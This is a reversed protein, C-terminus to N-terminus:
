KCSKMLKEYKSKYKLYKYMYDKNFNGGELDNEVKPTTAPAPTPTPTTETVPTLRRSLIANVSSIKDKLLGILNNILEPDQHQKAELLALLQLVALEGYLDYINGSIDQSEKPNIKKLLDDFYVKFKKDKEILDQTLTTIEPNNKLVYLVNENTVLKEFLTKIPKAIREPVNQLIYNSKTIKNNGLFANLINVLFLLADNTVQRKEEPITGKYMQEVNITSLQTTM